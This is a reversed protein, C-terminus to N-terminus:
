LICLQNQANKQWKVGGKGEKYTNGSIDSKSDNLLLLLTMNENSSLTPYTCNIGNDSFYFFCNWQYWLRKETGCPTKKCLENSICIDQSPTKQKLIVMDLYIHRIKKYTKNFRKTDMNSNPLPSIPTPLPTAKQSVYITYNKGSLAPWM